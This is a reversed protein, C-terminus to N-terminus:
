NSRWYYAVLNAGTRPTSVPSFTVTQGAISYNGGQQQEVGNVFLLVSLPTIPLHTLTFVKNSSNILGAPTEQVPLVDERVCQCNVPDTTLCGDLWQQPTGCYNQGKAGNINGDNNPNFVRHDFGVLPVFRRDIVYFPNRFGNQLPFQKAGRPAFYFQVPVTIDPRDRYPRIITQFEHRLGTTWMGCPDIPLRM